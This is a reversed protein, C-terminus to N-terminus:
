KVKQFRQSLEGNAIAENLDSVPDRFQHRRGCDWMEKIPNKDIIRKYLESISPVESFSSYEEYTYSLFAVNENIGRNDLWYGDNLKTPLALKGNTYLDRPHPYSVITKKDSSLIVPVNQSYDKKMKYIFVKPSAVSAPPNKTAFSIGAGGGGGNGQPAPSEVVKEETHCAALLMMSLVFVFTRRMKLPM